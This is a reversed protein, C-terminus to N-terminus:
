IDRAEKLIVLDEKSLGMERVYVEENHEGILPARRRIQCSGEELKTFAGPYTITEGLEPHEVKEWFNRISLQPFNLMDSATFLPYLQIGRKQAEKWLEDKTHSMFVRAFCGTIDDVLEQSVIQWNWARWNVTKLAETGMGEDIAWQAMGVTSVLMGEEVFPFFKVGGDKCPYTLPVNVYGISGDPKPQPRPWFRGSRKVNMKDNLWLGQPESGTAWALSLISPVDVYQGHGTVARHYLAILSGIAAQMAGFFYPIPYSPSLPPRDADGTIYAQSSLAWLVISSTNFNRYPGSQGFGSVSAMIIRPNIKVLTEYGLGLSEMYGPKFSEIVIDATACLKKFIDQGGRTEINLTIGRKNTNLGMWFLSKEPNPINHFFPGLRRGTDGDPKEIKLVDAGLDGLIKGCFYGLEDTLDLVRYPSLMGQTENNRM